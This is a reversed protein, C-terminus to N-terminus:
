LTGVITPRSSCNHCPIKCVSMMVTHKDKPYVVLKRLTM